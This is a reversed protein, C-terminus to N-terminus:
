ASLGGTRYIRSGPTIHVHLCNRKCQATLLLRVANSIYALSCVGALLCPLVGVDCSSTLWAVGSRLMSPPQQPRMLWQDRGELSKEWQEDTDVAAEIAAAESENLAWTGAKTRVGEAQLRLATNFHMVNLSVVKPPATFDTSVISAIVLVGLSPGLKM